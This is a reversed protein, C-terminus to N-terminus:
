RLVGFHSHLRLREVALDAPDATPALTPHSSFWDIVTLRKSTENELKAKLSQWHEFADKDPYLELCPRPIPRLMRASLNNKGGVALWLRSPDLVSLILATKESEAIAVPRERDEILRHMGFPCQSLNFGRPTPVLKHVWRPPIDHSRKGSIPNYHLIKGTRVKNERDIQWFVTGGTRSAGLRYLFCAREVADRDNFIRLLFKFLASEERHRYFPSPDIDLTHIEPLSVTQSNSRCGQRSKTETPSPPTVRSSYGATRPPFHYACKASRDCKGVSENDLYAGTANDVYRVFTRKGCQPCIFKRSSKDLSYRYFSM